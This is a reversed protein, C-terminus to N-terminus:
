PLFAGRKGIERGGEEDEGVDVFKPLSFSPPPLM